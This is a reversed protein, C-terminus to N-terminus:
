RSPACREGDGARRSGPTADVTAAILACTEVLGASQVAFCPVREAIRAVADLGHNPHALANLANVYLRAGAEGPALRRMSPTARDPARELLLIAGLPLLGCRAAAPLASSPVHITRGLHLADRPLPFDEPPARKLALAHPYPWVGLKDPDIPSLEDSLYRFGHHLLGWAAMSKGTGSPAALLYARGHRELAASHLFFLDFRRRQLAITLDRELHRLVDGADACEITAEDGLVLTLPRPPAADEVRYRIAAGLDDGPVAMAAFNRRLTDQTVPDVCEIRVRLGLIALTIPSTSSTM